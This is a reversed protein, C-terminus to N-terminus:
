FSDRSEPLPAPSVPQVDAAPEPEAAPRPRKRKEAPKPEMGSRLDLFERVNGPVAKAYLADVASVMEQEVSQGKQELYLRLAALKEEDYPITISDKKM